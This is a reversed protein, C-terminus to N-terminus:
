ATQDAPKILCDKRRLASQVDGSVKAFDAGVLAKRGVFVYDRGARMEKVRARVAESLMRRCRNRVVAGGIKGSVSFGVRPGAESDNDMIYLVLTAAAVSNRKDYVAKFDKSRTLRYRRKLM